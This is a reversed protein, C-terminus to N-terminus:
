APGNTPLSAKRLREAMDQLLVPLDDHAALEACLEGFFQEILEILAGEQLESLGMNIFAQILAEQMSEMLQATRQQQRAHGSNLDALALRMDILVSGIADQSRQNAREVEIAQRRADAGEALLSLNDRLRGHREEDELPINKVLLTIGGFNYISRNHFEAVHGLHQVYDLIAAELPLNAGEPSLNLPDHGLRVQVAANLDYQAVADLLAKALSPADNCSFSRRMFELVVGLEGMTTMACFATRQADDAMALLRTKETQIRRAVAVKRQLEGAEFPKVIFDEGGAEYGALRAEITDHGSIFTVPLGATQPNAKIEKCFSYGDMGPLGVDLFLMDPKEDALREQCAEATEFFVATCVQSLIHSQLDRMMPEDEVVFVLFDCGM